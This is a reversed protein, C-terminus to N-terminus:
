YVISSTACPPQTTRKMNNLGNLQSTKRVRAARLYRLQFLNAIALAFCLGSELLRTGYLGEADKDKLVIKSPKKTRSPLRLSQSAAAGAGNVRAKKPKPQSQRPAKSAPAKKTPAKKKKPAEEVESESIDDEEEEEEEEDLDDNDDDDDQQEDGSEDAGGTRKRKAGAQSQSPPPVFKEPARIARGSRRRQSASEGADIDSM